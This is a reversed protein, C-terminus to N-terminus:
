NSSPRVLQSISPLVSHNVLQSVSQSVPQSFSQSTFQSVPSAPQSVSQCELNSQTNVGLQQTSCQACHQLSSDRLLVLPPCVNFNLNGTFCKRLIILTHRPRPQGSLRLAIHKVLTFRLMVNSVEHDETRSCPHFFELGNQSM